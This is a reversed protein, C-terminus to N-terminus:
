LIVIDYSSDRMKARVIKVKELGADDLARQIAGECLNCDLGLVLRMWQPPINVFFLGNEMFVDDSRLSRVIRYEGEYEWCPAKQKILAEGKKRFLDPNNLNDDPTIIVRISSKYDVKDLSCMTEDNFEFEFAVGRHKDAYHAWMAPSSINKSLCLMGTNKLITHMWECMLCVPAYAGKEDIVAPLMEYPDNLSDMTSIKLRHKLIDDLVYEPKVYHYLRM